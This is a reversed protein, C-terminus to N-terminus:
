FFGVADASGLPWEWSFPSLPSSVTSPIDTASSGISSLVAWLYIISCLWHLQGNASSVNSVLRELADASVVFCDCANWRQVALEIGVCTEAGSALLFGSRSLHDLSLYSRMNSHGSPLPHSERIVCLAFARMQKCIVSAPMFSPQYIILPFRIVNVMLLRYFTLAARSHSLYGHGLRAEM